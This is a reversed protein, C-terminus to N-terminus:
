LQPTYEPSSDGVIMVRRKVVMAGEKGMLIGDVVEDGDAEYKERDYSWWM